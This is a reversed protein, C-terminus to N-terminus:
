ATITNRKVSYELGRLGGQDQLLADALSADITSLDTGEWESKKEVVPADPKFKKVLDLFTNFNFTDKIAVIRKNQVDERTLALVHLKAVDDVDVQRNPGFAAVMSDKGEVIDRFWAGTSGFDYGPIPAGLVMAPHIANVAFTSKNKKVYDWVLQESLVKSTAYVNISNPETKSQEVMEENWTNEDFHKATKADTSAAGMAISSSTLVLRKIQSQSSATDLLTTYAKLVSAVVEDRNDSFSVDTATHVIGQVGKIAEDYAGEKMYDEVVVTEIQGKGHIKEL